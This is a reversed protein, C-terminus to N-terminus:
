HPPFRHESTKFILLTKAGRYDVCLSNFLDKFSFSTEVVEPYFFGSLMHKKNGKLISTEMTVTLSFLCSETDIMTSSFYHM